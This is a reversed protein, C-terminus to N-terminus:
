LRGMIINKNTETMKFEDGDDDDIPKLHLINEISDRQEKEFRNNEQIIERKIIKLLIRGVTNNIVQFIKIIGGTIGLIQLINNESETKYLWFDSLAGVLISNTLILIWLLITQYKEKVISDVNYNPLKKSDIFLDEYYLPRSATFYALFPFNWFIIFGAGGSILPFYIYNIIVKFPAFPALIYILILPLFVRRSWHKLCKDMCTHCCAKSKIQTIENSM